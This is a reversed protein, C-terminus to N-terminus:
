APDIPPPPLTLSREYRRAFSLVQAVYADSHNYSFYATRLGDDTDLGRSARCLYRAAALTADYLNFPTAIGDGNGDAAFRAWTQPIFQMPGVARDFAADGDLVGGDSDTVVQTQNTGNLQIGIIRISTDGLKDLRAGGYTGHRGEVRSIGAIAWWQVRCTPDEEATALAARHYADLAVLAFESGEVTAVARAEEYAVRQTAVPPAAAVEREVAAPRAAVLQAGADALARLEARAAKVQATAEELRALHAAREALLVDMSAAGLVDRRDADNVAPQDTALAADIRAAPGGTTYMRVALDAIARELEDLRARAGGARATAAVLASELLGARAAVETLDRDISLRASQQATLGAAAREYSARARRVDAGDVPITALEPSLPPLGPLEPSPQALVVPATPAVASAAISPVATCLAAVAAVLLARRPAPDASFRMPM